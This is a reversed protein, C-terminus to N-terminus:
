PLSDLRRTDGHKVTFFEGDALAHKRRAAALDVLAQDLPEDTLQFTGWHIGLSRRARIDKHIKVAEDPDVHQPAMFWRPAYAGIPILGLDIPGFKAGIAQFDVSSYGTDGGFFVRRQRGKNQGELVFGGWLCTNADTLTRRSWHQVPVLNVRVGKVEVSDWWDLAKTNIIGQEALLRENGLPVVFLPPGGAQANLAKVSGLDLHDYHNHSVVVVDIRPLEALRLAPPQHRKPGAWQVPFARESFQPDTLINLGGIQVLVTAHGVWTVAFDSRNKQIYGLDPVNASLDVKPPPIELSWRERQWRLFEGFPRPAIATTDTNRFGRETHHPKKPDYYPNPSSCSSAALVAVAAVLLRRTM